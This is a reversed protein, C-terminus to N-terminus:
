KVEVKGFFMNMGCAYKLEGEKEPTFSVTVPQNLPLHKSIGFDPFVIQELCASPDKRTFVIEAPVNKTVAIVNPTYGGDVTVEITQKNGVQRAHVTATNRQGFFWWWILGLVALSGIVVLVKDM